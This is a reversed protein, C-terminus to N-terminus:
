FRVQVGGIVASEEASRQLRLFLNADRVLRRTFIVSIGLGERRDNQLAVTARDRDSFAVAGEFRIAQVRGQAYPVEFSVSLDRNLKWAGFLTVRQRQIRGSSLKVGVQYALRGEAARVSPSQLSATFEFASTDSEALRYVLQAARTLDWAGEFILTREQRRRRGHTLQRYRYLIEHHPGVEWGGQLTLRDESGDAKKVFFSLRNNADAQWRGTLALQQAARGDTEARNLAIVLGNAQAEMRTGKLYVTKKGRSADRLVFAVEHDQTLSWRGEVRRTPDLADDLTYRVSAASRHRTPM